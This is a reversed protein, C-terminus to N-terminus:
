IAHRVCLVVYKIWKFAIRAADCECWLCCFVQLMLLHMGPLLDSKLWTSQYFICRKRNSLRNGAITGIHHSSFVMKPLLMLLYRPYPKTNTPFSLLRKWRRCDPVSLAGWDSHVLIDKTYSQSFFVISKISDLLSATALNIKNEKSRITNPKFHIKLYERLLFGLSTSSSLSTYAKRTESTNESM